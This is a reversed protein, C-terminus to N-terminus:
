PASKAEGLPRKAKLGGASVPPKKKLPAIEDITEILAEMRPREKDLGWYIHKEKVQRDNAYAVGQLLDLILSEDLDPRRSAYYIKMTVRVDGTLLERQTTCQQKFMESYSLAKASKILRSVGGYAVLRRSNAKSAPEGFIKISIAQMNNKITTNHSNACSFLLPFFIIM